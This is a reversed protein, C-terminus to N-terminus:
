QMKMPIERGNAGREERREATPPLSPSKWPRDGKKPRSSIYTPSYSPFNQVRLILPTRAIIAAGGEASLVVSRHLAFLASEEEEEVGIKNGLPTRWVFFSIYAPLPNM